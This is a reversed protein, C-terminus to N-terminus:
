TLIPWITDKDWFVWHYNHRVIKGHEVKAVDYAYLMEFIDLRVEPQADAQARCAQSPAMLCLLGLLAVLRQLPTPRTRHAAM